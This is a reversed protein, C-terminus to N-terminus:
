KTSQRQLSDLLQDYAKVFAQVGEELLQDTVQNLDINYHSLKKLDFIAQNVEEKLSLRPKGHDLFAKLTSV